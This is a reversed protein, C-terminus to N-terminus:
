RRHIITMGPRSLISPRPEEQKPEEIPEEQIPEEPLISNASGSEIPEVIPEDALVTEAVFVEPQIPEVMIPTPQVVEEQKPEELISHLKKDIADEMQLVEDLAKVVEEADAIDKLYSDDSLELKARYDDVQKEIHDHRLMKLEEIKAEYEKKTELAKSM